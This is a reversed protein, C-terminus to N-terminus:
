AIEAWAVQGLVLAGTNSAQLTVLVNASPPVVMPVAWVEAPNYNYSSMVDILTGNADITSGSFASMASAAGGVYLPSPTIPTGNGAAHITPGGYFRLTSSFAARTELKRMFILMSTTTTGNKLLIYPNESTDSITASDRTVTYCKAGQVLSCDITPLLFRSLSM